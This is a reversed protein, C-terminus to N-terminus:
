CWFFIPRNFLFSHTHTHKPNIQKLFNKRTQM